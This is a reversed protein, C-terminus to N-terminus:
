KERREEREERTEEREERREERHERREKRAAGSLALKKAKAAREKKQERFKGKVASMRKRRQMTVRRSKAKRGMFIGLILVIIVKRYPFTSRDPNSGSANRSGAM